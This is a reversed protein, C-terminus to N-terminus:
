SNGGVPRCGLVYGWGGIGAALRSQTKDHKEINEEVQSIRFDPTPIVTQNGIYIPELIEAQQCVAGPCPGAAGTGGVTWTSLTHAHTYM